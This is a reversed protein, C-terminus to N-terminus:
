IMSYIAKGLILLQPEVMGGGGAVSCIGEEPQKNKYRFASKFFLVIM